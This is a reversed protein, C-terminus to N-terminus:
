VKNTKKTVKKKIFVKISGTGKNPNKKKRLEELKKFVIVWFTYPLM